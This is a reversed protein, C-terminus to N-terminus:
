PTWTILTGCRCTRGAEGWRDCTSCWGIALRQAALARMHEECLPMRPLHELRIRKPDDPDPSELMRRSTAHHTAVDGCVLCADAAAAEPAERTEIGEEVSGILEMRTLLGRGFATLEFARPGLEGAGAMVPGRRTEELLGHQALAGLVPELIEAVGSARALEDVTLGDPPLTTYPGLGLEKYTQVFLQLVHIHHSDLDALARTYLIEVRVANAEEAVAGTALSRSLARLHDDTGADQAALLVRTALEGKLPDERLRDCLDEVSIAAGIAGDALVREAKRRRWGTIQGLFLDITPGAAAALAAGADGGVHVGLIAAGVASTTDVAWRGAAGTSSSEDTM